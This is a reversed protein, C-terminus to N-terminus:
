RRGYRSFQPLVRNIDLASKLQWGISQAQPGLFELARTPDAITASALLVIILMLKSM